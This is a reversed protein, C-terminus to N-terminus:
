KAPMAQVSPAPAPAAAPASLLLWANLAYLVLLGYFKTSIWFAQPWRFLQENRYDLPFALLAYGIALVIIPAFHKRDLCAAVLVVLAYIAWVLHHVWSVPSILHTAILVLAFELHFQNARRSRYIVFVTLAALAFAGAYYLVRELTVASYLAPVFEDGVLLRALFGRWSQNAIWANDAQAFGTIIGIAKRTPQEGLTLLALLACGVMTAVGAAVLRFGRKWLFYLFLVAPAIKISAALGLLVGALVERQRSWAYATGTLLVLILLNIQGNALNYLLPDYSFFVVGILVATRVDLSLKLAKCILWVACVVLSLNLIRWVVVAAPYPLYSLPLFLLTNFPPYNYETVKPIKLEKALSQLLADDYPDLGKQTAYASTYYSNFDYMDTNFVLPRVAQWAFGIFGVVLLLVILKSGLKHEDTSVQGM